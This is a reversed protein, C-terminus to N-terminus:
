RRHRDRGRRDVAPRGSARVHALLAVGRLSRGRAGASRHELGMGSPECRHGDGTGVGGGAPRAARRGQERFRDAPLPYRRRGDHRQLDACGNRRGARLVPRRLRGCLRRLRWWHRRVVVPGVRRLHLRGLRSALLHHAHHQGGLRGARQAAPRGRLVCRQRRGDGAEHQRVPGREGSSHHGRVRPAPVARDPVPPLLRREASRPEGTAPRACGSRPERDGRAGPGSRLWGAFETHRCRRATPERLLRHGHLARDHRGAAVGARRRRQAHVQAGVGERADDRRPPVGPPRRVRVLPSRRERGPPVGAVVPDSHRRRPNGGRDRRLQGVVPASRHVCSRRQRHHGLCRRPHPCRRGGAISRQTSRDGVGSRQACRRARRHRPEHAAGLHPDTPERLLQVLDARGGPGARRARDGPRWRVVLCRPRDAHRGDHRPRRRRHHRRGVAGGM